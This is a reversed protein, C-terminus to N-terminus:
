FEKTVLGGREAEEKSISERTRTSESTASTKRAGVHTVNFVECQFGRRGGRMVLCM